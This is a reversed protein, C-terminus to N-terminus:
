VADDDGGSQARDHLVRNNLAWRLWRPFVEDDNKGKRYLYAAYGVVLEKDEGTYNSETDPLKVGERSIMGKAADIKQTLLTDIASTSIILQTKLLTLLVSQAPM